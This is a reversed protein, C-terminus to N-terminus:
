LTRKCAAVIQPGFRTSMGRFLAERAKGQASQLTRGVKWFRPKLPYIEAWQFSNRAQGLRRWGVPTVLHCFSSTDTSETDFECSSLM